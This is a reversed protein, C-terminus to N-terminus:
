RWFGVPLIAKSSLYGDGVGKREEELELCGLMVVCQYM